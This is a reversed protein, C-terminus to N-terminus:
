KKVRYDNLVNLLQNPELHYEGQVNYIRNAKGKPKESYALQIKLEGKDHMIGYNFWKTTIEKVSNWPIVYVIDFIKEIIGQKTVILVQKKSKIIKIINFVILVLAGITILGFIIAVFLRMNFNYVSLDLGWFSSLGFLDFISIIFGFSLVFSLISTFINWFHYQKSEFYLTDKDESKDFLLKAISEPLKDNKISLGIVIPWQKTKKVKDEQNNKEYHESILNHMKNFNDSFITPISITKTHEKNEGHKVILKIKTIFNDHERRKIIYEKIDTWLLLTAKKNEKVLVGEQDIKVYYDSKNYQAYLGDFFMMLFWLVFLFMVGEVIIFLWFSFLYDPMSKIQLVLLFISVFAFVLALFVSVGKWIKINKTFEKINFMEGNHDKIFDQMTKSLTDIRHNIISEEIM